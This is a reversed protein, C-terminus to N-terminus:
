HFQLSKRSKPLKTRPDTSHFACGLPFWEELQIKRQSEYIGEMENNKWIKDITLCVFKFLAFRFCSLLIRESVRREASEKKVATIRMEVLVLLGTSDNICCVLFLIM